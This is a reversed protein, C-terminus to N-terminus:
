LKICLRAFALLGFNDLDEVKPILVLNTAGFFTSIPQGAFVDKAMEVLDDKVIDWAM